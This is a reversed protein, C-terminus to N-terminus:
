SGTGTLGTSISFVGSGSTPKTSKAIPLEDILWFVFAWAAGAAGMCFARIAHFEDDLFMTSRVLFWYLWYAPILGLMIWALGLARRIWINM